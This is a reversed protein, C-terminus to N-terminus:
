RVEQSGHPRTGRAAWARATLAISGDPGTPLRERLAEAVAARAGDPLTALYAPAPGQGGLFPTWYDDFDTFVTPIEIGEVRVDALGAGELLARMPGPRCLGFRLAEDLRRAAPDLEGAVDWFRRILQMGGGYDWLYIAIRGGPATVRCMEALAATPDPVFNLVLGSVTVDFEGDGAPIAAAEGARFEAREDTVQAVAYERFGASPEVGVVSAPEALALVTGALAGTGSGVDLWRAGPAAEVWPVFERAVARSWRGIYPEYGAGASWVDPVEAVAVEGTPADDDTRPPATL